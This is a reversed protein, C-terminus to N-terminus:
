APFDRTFHGQRTSSKNLHLMPRPSDLDPLSGAFTGTLRFILQTITLSHFRSIVPSFTPQWRQLKQASEMLNLFAIFSKQAQLIEQGFAAPMTRMSAASENFQQSSYGSSEDMFSFRAKENTQM